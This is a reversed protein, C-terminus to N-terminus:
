EVNSNNIKLKRDWADLRARVRRNNMLGSIQKRSPTKIDMDAQLRHRRNVLRVSQLGLLARGGLRVHSLDWRGKRRRRRGGRGGGHVWSQVVTETLHVPRRHIPDRLYSSASGLNKLKHIM